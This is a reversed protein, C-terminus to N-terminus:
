WPFQMAFAKQVGSAINNVNRPLYV